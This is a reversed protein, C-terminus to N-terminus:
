DVVFLCIRLIEYLIIHQHPMQIKHRDGLVLPWIEGEALAACYPEITDGIKVVIYSAVDFKAAFKSIVRLIKVAKEHEARANGSSFFRLSLFKVEHTVAHM